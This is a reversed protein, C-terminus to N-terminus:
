NIQQSMDSVIPADRDSEIPTNSIPLFQDGVIVADLGNPAAGMLYGMMIQRGRTV